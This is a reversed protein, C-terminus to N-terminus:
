RRGEELKLAHGVREMMERKGLVSAVASLPPGSQTVCALHTSPTAHLCLRRMPVGRPTISAILLRMCVRVPVHDASAHGLLYRRSSLM